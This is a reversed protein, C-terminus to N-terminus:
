RQYIWYTLHAWYKKIFTPLKELFMLNEVTVNIRQNMLDDAYTPIKLDNKIDDLRYNHSVTDKLSTKGLIKDKIQEKKLVIGPWPTTVFYGKEKLEFELLTNDFIKELIKKDANEEKIHHFFEPELKKWIPCCLQNTNYVSIFLCKNTVRGLEKILLPINDEKFHWLSSLNWVIDFSRDDFPLNSYNKVLNFNAKLGIKNWLAEIWELRESNDDCVTIEVGKKALYISNIGSFGTMGFSPCDLVNKIGYDTIFRQFFRELVMRDYVTGLGENPDFFFNKWNDNHIGM